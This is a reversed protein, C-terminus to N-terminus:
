TCTANPFYKLPSAGPGALSWTRGSNVDTLCYDQAAAAAVVLTPSVGADIAALSAHDMGVYTLNQAYYAEASPMAARLSAKTAADAARERFGLYSPVAIAILIGIIVLVVLLEILTFGDEGHSLRTARL